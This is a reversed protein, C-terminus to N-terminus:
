CWSGRIWCCWSWDQVVSTPTLHKPDHFPFPNYITLVISFSQVSIFLPLNMLINESKTCYLQLIKFYRDRPCITQSISNNLLSFHPVIDCCANIMIKSIHAYLIVSQKPGYRGLQGLLMIIAASFGETIHLELYECIKGVLHDSTWDWNQMDHSISPLSAYLFLIFFASDSLILFPLPALCLWHM